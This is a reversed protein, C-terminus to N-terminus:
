AVSNNFHFEFSEFGEEEGGCYWEKYWKRLDDEAGSVNVEPIEYDRVLEIKVNFDNSVKTLEMVDVTIIQFICSLTQQM